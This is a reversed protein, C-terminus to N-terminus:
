QQWSRWVMVCMRPWKYFEFNDALPDVFFEVQQNCCYFKVVEARDTTGSMLGWNM